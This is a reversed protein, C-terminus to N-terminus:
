FTFRFAIAAGYANLDKVLKTNGFDYYLYQYAVGVSFWDRVRYGIGLNARTTLNSDTHFGGVDFHYPMFWKKSLEVQGKFGVIPDIFNGTEAFNRSRVWDPLPSTLDLSVKGDVHAYRLGALLDFNVRQNHFLSYAGSAEFISAKLETKAALTWGSSGPLVGPFHASRNPDSFDVYIFDAQMSWKRKRAQFDAMAAFNLNNLYSSPGTDLSGSGLGPPPVFQMSGTVNPAWLYPTIAFRWKDSGTVDEAQAAAAFVLLIATVLLSTTTQAFKKQFLCERKM